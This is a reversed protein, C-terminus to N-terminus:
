APAGNSVGTIAKWVFKGQSWGFSAAFTQGQTVELDQQVAGMVIGKTARCATALRLM